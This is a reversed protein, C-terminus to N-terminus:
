MFIQTNKPIQRLDKLIQDILHPQTLHITGDAKREINVGLFDQLDGKVTIDLKVQRMEKIIKNIEREDPGALISNDTYLIYMTKGHYFVCEDVKSQVFGVKKILKDV